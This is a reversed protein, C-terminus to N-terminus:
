RVAATESLASRQPFSAGGLSPIRGVGYISIREVRAGSGTGSEGTIGHRLLREM